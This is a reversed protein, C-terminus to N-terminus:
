ILKNAFYIKVIFFPTKQTTVGHAGGEDPNVFITSSPVICAAVLLRRQWTGGFRRNM